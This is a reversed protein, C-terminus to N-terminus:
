RTLSYPSYGNSNNTEVGPLEQSAPVVGCCGCTCGSITQKRAARLAALLSRHTSVIGGGHFRTRVVNWPGTCKWGYEEGMCRIADELEELRNLGRPWNAEIEAQINAYANKITLNADMMFDGHTQRGAPEILASAQDAEITCMM